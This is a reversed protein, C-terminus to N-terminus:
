TLNEIVIALAEGGGICLAAVGYRQKNQMLTHALTVVLRCGTAGIPHGLAVAGGKPNVKKPDLKLETMAAMTVATFAENIEFCDIDSYQLGAQKVAKEIAGVPATTFWVPDQSHRAIAIIKCLPKLGQKEADSQRMMVVAAAGDNLTSANGATITGSKEFVPKLSPLKEINGKSPEEDTAVLITEKRSAVEVGAIEDEFLKSQISNLARQYSQIAFADQDAQTFNYKQACQEACSGMHLNNYPDWLGDNVLSDIMPQNGLRFGQRSGMLLHPANSMSEMGGAVVVNAQGTLLSQWGFGIAQLGSGCVKNITVAGATTPIGAAISAQRAPAQGVGATLVCGMYVEDVQEPLLSSESVAAQIATAGLKSAIVSALSGLFSGIPTRKASVIVVSEQSM